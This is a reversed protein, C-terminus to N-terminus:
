ANAAVGFFILASGSKLRISPEHIVKGCVKGTQALFYGVKAFHVNQIRLLGHVARDLLRSGIHACVPQQLDLPFQRIHPITWGFGPDPPVFDTLTGSLVAWGTAPYTENLGIGRERQM